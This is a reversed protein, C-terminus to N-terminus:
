WTKREHGDWREGYSFIKQLIKEKVVPLPLDKGAGVHAGKKGSCKEGSEETDEDKMHKVIEELNTDDVGKEKSQKKSKPGKGKGVARSEIAM